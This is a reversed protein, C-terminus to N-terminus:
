GEFSEIIAERVAETAVIEQVSEYAEVLHSGVTKIDDNYFYEEMQLETTAQVAEDILTLLELLTM